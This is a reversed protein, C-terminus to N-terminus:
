LRPEINKDIMNKFLVSSDDKFEAVSRIFTTIDKYLDEEGDGVIGPVDFKAMLNALTETM